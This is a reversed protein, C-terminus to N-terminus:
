RFLIIEDEWKLKRYSEKTIEIILIIFSVDKPISYGELLLSTNGNRDTFNSFRLGYGYISVGAGEIPTANRANVVRIKMEYPPLAEEEDSLNFDHVNCENIFIPKFSETHVHRPLLFLLLLLSVGIVTVLIIKKLVNRNEKKKNKTEM